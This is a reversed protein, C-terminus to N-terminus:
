NTYLFHFLFNNKIKGNCYEYVNNFWDEKNIYNDEDNNAPDVNTEMEQDEYAYNNEVFELNEFERARSAM